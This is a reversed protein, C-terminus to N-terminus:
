EGLLDGLRDLKKEWEPKQDRAWKELAAFGEAAIQCTRVRGTKQTVVLGADELIRLHQVVATLTMAFPEALRSVSMPGEGLREIMARRTPDGLADLIKGIEAM